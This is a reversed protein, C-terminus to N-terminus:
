YYIGKRVVASLKLNEEKRTPEVSDKAGWGPAGRVNGAFQM